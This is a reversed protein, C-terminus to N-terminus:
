SQKVRVTVNGLQVTSGDRLAVPPQLRQQAYVTGGRLSITLSATDFGRVFVTDRTSAGFTIAVEGLALRAIDQPGHIVEIFAGKSVQMSEAIAVGLGILAGIAAGGIARALIGPAGITSAGVFAAGGLTGGILGFLASRWRDLNPIAFSLAIGMLAGLVGWCIPRAIFLKLPGSSFQNYIFQAAAGSLTGILTASAITYVFQGASPCRHKGQRAIAWRLTVAIPASVIASWVAVELMISSNTTVWTDDRITDALLMGFIGGLGGLTAMRHQQKM